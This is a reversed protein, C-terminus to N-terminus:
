KIILRQTIQKEEMKICISYIGPSLNRTDLTKANAEGENCTEEMELKGITNYVQIHKMKLKPSVLSVQGSTAPNPFLWISSGESILPANATLNSQFVKYVNENSLASRFVMIEDIRGFFSPYGASIHNSSSGISFEGAPPNCLVPGSTQFIGNLYLEFTSGRRVLSIHVWQFPPLEFQNNFANESVGGQHIVLTKGLYGSGFQGFPKKVYVGYGSSATNGNYMLGTAQSDAESYFWGTMTCSDPLQLSPRVIKSNIGNFRWSGNADGFFGEAATVGFGQTHLNNGSNDNFNSNFPYYVYLDNWFTLQGYSFNSILLFTFQITILYFAKM